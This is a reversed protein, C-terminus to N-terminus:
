SKVALKKKRSLIVQPNASLVFSINNKPIIFRIIRAFLNSGGYRYRKPDVFIDDCYRDFIM